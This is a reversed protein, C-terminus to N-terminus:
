EQLIAASLNIMTVREDGLVRKLAYRRNAGTGTTLLLGRKALQKKARVAAAVGGCAHDFASSAMLIRDQGNERTLIGPLSRIGGSKVEDLPVFQERYKECYTRLNELPNSFLEAQQEQGVFAIHDRECALLGLEIQKREFPLVKFEAALCLAAYITGFKRHLRDLEPWRKRGVSAFYDIREHLFKKVWAPRIACKEVLVHVFRRAIRGHHKDVVKKMFKVLSSLDVRGCLDDFMGYGCEPAPVDILRDFYARDIKRGAHAALAAVSRNSTSLVGVYWTDEQEQGLRGKTKGSAIRMITELWAGPATTTLSTEDLFLGTHNAVAVLAELHNPTHNWTDGFGYDSAIRPDPNYGWVTSVVSAIATKGSGPAGVLQVAVQDFDGALALPGVLMVGLALMMRSNVAIIPSLKNWGRISGSLRFRKYFEFDTDIATVLEPNKGWGKSPKFTKRPLVFCSGHAGLRTAVPTLKERPRTSQVRTILERRAADSVIHAGNRNLVRIISQSFDDIPVFVARTKGKIGLGVFRSGHDDCGFSAITINDTLQSEAAKVGVRSEKPLPATGKKRKM